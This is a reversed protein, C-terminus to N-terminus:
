FGRPDCFRGYLRDYIFYDVPVKVSAACGESTRFTSEMLLKREHDLVAATTSAQDVDLWVYKDKTM